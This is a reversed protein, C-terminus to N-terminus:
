KFDYDEYESETETENDFDDDKRFLIFNTFDDVETQTPALSKFPGQMLKIEEKTNKHTSGDYYPVTDNNLWSLANKKEEDNGFTMKSVNQIRELFRINTTKSNVTLPITLSLRATKNEYSGHFYGENWVALYSSKKDKRSIPMQKMPMLPHTLARPNTLAAYRENFNSKFFSIWEFDDDTFESFCSYKFDVPDKTWRDVVDRKTQLEQLGKVIRNIMKLHNEIPFFHPGNSAWYTKVADKNLEGHVNKLNLLELIVVLRWPTQNEIIFTNGDFIGGQLHLLVQVGHDVAWHKNANKRHKQLSEYCKDRLTKPDFGDHHSNLYSGGPPKYIIHPLGTIYLHRAFMEELKMVIDPMLRLAFSPHLHAFIGFGSYSWSKAVAAGMNLASGGNLAFRIRDRLFLNFEDKNSSKKDFIINRGHETRV